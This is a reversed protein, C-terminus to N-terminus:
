FIGQFDQWAQNTNNFRSGFFDPTAFNRGYTFSFGYNAGFANRLVALYRASGHTGVNILDYPKIFFDPQLGKAIKELDVMVTVEKNEGVRRTVEVKKPWALGGLGGASAIAMKLTMPRGTLNVPGSGRVNGMIWFEGIMDVPVSISDGPRLVINYRPDGGLLKDVPIKIIRVQAGAAGIQELGYGEATERDPPLPGKLEDPQRAEKPAIAQAPGVRVPLWRGDEFVWEVRESGAQGNTLDKTTVPMTKDDVESKAESELGEPTALAELERDMIMESSAIIIGGSDVDGRTYPAIIELMEEEPSLEEDGRDPAVPKPGAEETQIGTAGVPQQPAFQMMEGPQGITAEEGTVERSVYIYSVNYERAGGAQAIADLLRFSYRPIPFRGSRGIGGGSISYIQSQSSRLMVSVSPNKLISPSLINTIEEELRAETLGAAPVLGVEPISVRGTETVMYVNVFPRGEAYLEYISIQLFDGNGIVYDQEYPIVDEPRPDEAGSYTEEPEDVVGLSDLIVNVIPVPRFRGLQTPDLYDRSCGM